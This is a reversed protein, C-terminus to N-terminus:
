KGDDEMMYWQWEKPPKPKPEEDEAVAVLFGIIMMALVAGVFVGVAFGVM